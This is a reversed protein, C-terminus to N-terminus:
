IDFDLDDGLDVHLGLRKKRKGFGKWRSFFEDMIIQIIKIIISLGVWL